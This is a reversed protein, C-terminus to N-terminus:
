KILVEEFKSGQDWSKGDKRLVFRCSQRVAYPAFCRSNVFHEKHACIDKTGCIFRKIDNKNVTMTEPM